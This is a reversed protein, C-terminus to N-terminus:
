DDLDPLSNVIQEIREPSIQQKLLEESLTATVRRHIDTRTQPTTETLYGHASFYSLLEHTKNNRWGPVLRHKLGTIIAEANGNEQEALKVLDDLFRDSVVKSNFLVERNVPKGRGIRWTRAATEIAKASARAHVFADNSGPFLKEREDEPLQKLQWWSTFQKRLMRYLLPVDDIVHWLHLSVSSEDWPDFFSIRLQRGYEAHDESAPRPPPMYQVPTAPIPRTPAATNSRVHDLDFVKHNTSTENLRTLWKGVEDLQATFYFIQRGERAIAIVTDIIAAAREDDSTGLVEDLLIPLRVTENLEIFALRVAILLQMREGVSLNSVPDASSESRRAIFKPPNSRDDMDLQLRNNTFKRLLEKARNFVQPRTGRSSKVRVWETLRRGASRQLHHGQIDRLDLLTRQRAELADSLEHGSKAHDIRVQITTIEDRLTEWQGALEEAETIQSEIEAEDITPFGELDRQRQIHVAEADQLDSRAALYDSRRALWTDIQPETERSVGLRQHIKEIEAKTDSAQVETRKLERAAEQEDRIAERKKALQADLTNIAQGASESSDVAPFGLKTIDANFEKLLESQQKRLDAITQEYGSLATCKQQWQSLNEIFRPLWEESMELEPGLRDSLESRQQDLEARAKQLREGDAQLQSLDRLRDDEARRKVALDTLQRLQDSVADATWTEPEPLGTRQYDAAHIERAGAPHGAARSKQQYWEWTGLGIAALLGAFWAPHHSIGLAISAVVVVALSSILPLLRVLLTPGLEEPSALWERLSRIGAHIQEYTQEPLDAEASDDLAGIREDHVRQAALHDIVKRTFSSLEPFQISSLESVQNESFDKGLRKRLESAEGKVQSAERSEQEISNELRQIRPLRSKLRECSKEAAESDALGTGAQAERAEAIRQEAIRRSEATEMEQAHLRDLEEREDGRLKAIIEPFGQLRAQLEEFRLRAARCDRARELQPLREYAAKAAAADAKLKTLRREDSQIERQRDAASRWKDDAEKAAAAAARRAPPVKNFSARNAAAELDFGGQTADAIEKAFQEDEGAILEELALRYRHRIEPPGLEPGSEVTGNLRWERHGPEILIEWAREDERIFGSVSPRVLETKGPWLLEHIVLATTSKGSGNRGHVINICDSLDEIKFGDGHHIGRAQHVSLEEFQLSREPM